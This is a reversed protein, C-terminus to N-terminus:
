HWYNPGYDTLIEEGRHINHTAELVAPRFRQNYHHARASLEANNGHCRPHPGARDAPRCDNAYRAVTSNTNRADTFVSRHPPHGVYSRITYQGHGQQGHGYRQNNQTNTLMEGTYTAIDDGPHFPRTAFLGLGAHHLRSRKVEVHQISNTHQWCNPGTKYTMRSCQRHAQTTATCRAGVRVSQDM